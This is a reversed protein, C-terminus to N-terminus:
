NKNVPYAFRLVVARRDRSDDLPRDDRRLSTAVAHADKDSLGAVLIARGGRLLGSLDSTPTPTEDKAPDRGGAAHAFLPFLSAEFDRRADTENLGPDAARISEFLTERRKIFYTSIEVRSSMPGFRAADGSKLEGLEYAWRDYFLVANKLSYPLTNTVSGILTQLEDKFEGPPFATTEYRWRCAFAKTSCTMVPANCVADYRPSERYVNTSSEARDDNHLRLRGRVASGVEAWAAYQDVSALPKGDLDHPSTSLSFTEASPSFLDFWSAGRAFKTKVDVDIVSIQNVIVARGKYADAIFYAAACTVVVILPFTIWTLTMKPAFKKLLLFEIPGILLIYVVIFGAVYAFPLPRAGQFREIFAQPAESLGVAARSPLEDERESGDILGIARATLRTREKWTTFPPANLDAAVFFVEGLGYPRRIVLPVDAERAEVAGEPKVLKPVRLNAGRLDLASAGGSFTELSGVQKLPMMKELPGPAFRTLPSDPALVKEGQAGVFLALRGGMRVWLDLAEIRAPDATFQRLIESRDTCIVVVNATEYGFWRLPLQSVSAIEVTTPQFRSLSTPWNAADKLGLADDDAGITVILRKDNRPEIFASDGVSDNSHLIKRAIEREGAVLRVTLPGPLRGMRVFAHLTSKERPALHIISSEPAGGLSTTIFPLGDGDAGILELAADLPESGGQVITEVPAWVGPKFYGQFGVSVSLIEPAVSKNEEASAFPHTGCLGILLIASTLLIHPTSRKCRSAPTPSYRRFSM